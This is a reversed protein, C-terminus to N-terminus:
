PHCRTLSVRSESCKIAKQVCQVAPAISFCFCVASRCTSLICSCPSCPPMTMLPWVAAHGLSPSLLTTPVYTLSGCATCRAQWGTMISCRSFFAGGHTCCRRLMERMDTVMTCTYAWHVIPEQSLQLTLRPGDYSKALHRNNPYSCEVQQAVNCPSLQLRSFHLPSFVLAITM